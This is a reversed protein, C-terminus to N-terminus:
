PAIIGLATWGCPRDKDDRIASARQSQESKTDKPLEDLSHCLRIIQANGRKLQHGHDRQHDDDQKNRVLMLPALDFRIWLIPKVGFSEHCLQDSTLNKCQQIQEHVTTSIGDVVESRCDRQRTHNRLIKAVKEGNHHTFGAGLRIRQEVRICSVNM